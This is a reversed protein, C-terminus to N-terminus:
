EQEQEQEERKALCYECECKASISKWDCRDHAAEWVHSCQKCGCEEGQLVEYSGFVAEANPMVAEVAEAFQQEYQKACDECRCLGLDRADAYVDEVVTHIYAIEGRLGRCRDCQCQETIKSWRVAWKINSWARRCEDCSCSPRGGPIRELYVYKGPYHERAYVMAQEMYRSICKDCDCYDEDTEAISRVNLIVTNNCTIM